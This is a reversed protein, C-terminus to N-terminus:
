KLYEKARALLENNSDITKQWNVSIDAATSGLFGNLEYASESIHAQSEYEFYKAKRIKKNADELAEVLEEVLRTLDPSPPPAVFLPTGDPLGNDGVADTYQIECTPISKDVIAVPEFSEPAEDILARIAQPLDHVSDDYENILALLKSAPIHKDTM